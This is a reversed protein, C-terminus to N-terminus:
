PFRVEQRRDGLAAQHECHRRGHHGHRRASGVNDDGEFYGAPQIEQVHYTGPALNAFSYAGNQETTTSTLLNGQADFLNIEENAIPAHRQDNEWDQATSVWVHGSISSPLAEAFNNQVSEDGPQLAVDSIIDPTTAVGDMNASVSGPTAGVSFYGSPQTEVVRYKGPGVDFAYNGDADTVTTRGTSVYSSSTADWQWLSLTVNAIGPEGSDLADNVNQDNYVKGSM